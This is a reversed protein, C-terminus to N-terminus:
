ATRQGQGGAAIVSQELGYQRFIGPRQPLRSRLAGACDPGRRGANRRGLRATEAGKGRRLVARHTFERSIGARQGPQRRTISSFEHVTSHARCGGTAAECPKQQVHQGVKTISCFREVIGPGRGSGSPQFHIQNQLFSSDAAPLRAAIARLVASCVDAPATVALM